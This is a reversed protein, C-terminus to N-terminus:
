RNEPRTTARHVERTLAEIQGLLALQQQQLDVLAAWQQGALADLRVHVAAIDMEAELNVVHDVESKFRDKAAQRNQSMMIIPASFAAQFSLALNLLIFPYPDWHQSWAVSNVAIWLVLLLSQIAIFPWSGLGSTVTDALRQGTSLRETPLAPMGSALLDRPFAADRARREAESLHLWLADTEQDQQETMMSRWM